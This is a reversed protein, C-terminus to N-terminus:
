QLAKKAEEIVWPQWKKEFFPMTGLAIEQFPKLDPTLFEMGNAKMEEILKKESDLSFNTCWKMTDIAAQIVIDQYKKDLGDVFKKSLLYSQM